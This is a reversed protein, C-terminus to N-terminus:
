TIYKLNVVSFEMQANMPLGSGLTSTYTAEIILIRTAEEVGDEVVLDDGSLVIDIENSLSTIEVELRDNIENGYINLLTWKVSDPVVSDGNEDTFSVSVVYTSKEVAKTTISTIGSM